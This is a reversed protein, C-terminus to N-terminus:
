AVQFEEKFYPLMFKMYKVLSMVSYDAKKVRILDSVRIGGKCLDYTHHTYSRSFAYIKEGDPFLLYYDVKRERGKFNKTGILLINSKIM